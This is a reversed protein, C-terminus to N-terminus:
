LRGLGSMSSVNAKDLTTKTSLVLLTIIWVGYNYVPKDVISIVSRTEKQYPINKSHKNLYYYRM